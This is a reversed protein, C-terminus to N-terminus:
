YSRNHEQDDNPGKLKNLKEIEEREIERRWGFCNDRHYQFPDQLSHKGLIVPNATFVMGYCCACQYVPLGVVIRDFFVIRTFGRTDWHVYGRQFDNL